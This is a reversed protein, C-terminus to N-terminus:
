GRVRVYLDFGQLRSSRPSLFQAGCRRVHMFFLAGGFLRNGGTDPLLQAGSSDIPLVHSRANSLWLLASSPGATTPLPRDSKEESLAARGDM